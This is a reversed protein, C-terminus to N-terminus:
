RTEEKNDMPETNCAHLLTLLIEIGHGQATLDSAEAICELLNKTLEALSDAPLPLDLARFVQLFYQLILENMFICLSDTSTGYVYVQRYAFRFSTQNSLFDGLFGGHNTMKDLINFVLNFFYQYWHYIFENFQLLVQLARNRYHKNPSTVAIQLAEKGLRSIVQM